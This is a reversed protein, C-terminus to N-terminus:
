VGKQARARPLGSYKLAARNSRYYEAPM